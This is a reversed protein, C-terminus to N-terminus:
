FPVDRPLRANSDFDIKGSSNELVASLNYEAIDDAIQM